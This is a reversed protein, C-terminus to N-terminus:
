ILELGAWTKDPVLGWKEGECGAWELPLTLIEAVGLALADKFSLSGQRCFALFYPCFAHLSVAAFAWILQLNGETFCFGKTKGRTQTERQSRPCLL